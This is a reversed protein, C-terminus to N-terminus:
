RLARQRQRRRNRVRLGLLSLSVGAVMCALMWARWLVPRTYLLPYDWRHLAHVLWRKARVDRTVALAVRALKPDIYFATEDLGPLRVYLYPLAIPPAAHTAYYYADPETRLQAPLSLSDASLERRLQLQPDGLDVLRTSDPEASCLALLEGGLAALELERLTRWRSCRAFASAITADTPTPVDGHVRALQEPSPRGRGFTIPDLSMAGSALWACVLAGFGLGITQHLRLYPERVVPLANRRRLFAAHIGAALGSCAVMFGVGALVWVTNRWARFNRRLLAPYIWHPIAGLWCWFRELRRTVQVTEGSVAALYVHTGAADDLAFHYLPFDGRDSRGVTWQDPLSLVELLRAPRRYRREVEAQARPRDLPAIPQSAGARWAKRASPPAVFSWTAEQELMSLRLRAGDRLGGADIFARLAPPLRVDSTAPIKPADAIRERETLEPYRAFLMVAGSAFWCAILLASAGGLVRHLRQVARAVSM